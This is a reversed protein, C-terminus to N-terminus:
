CTHRQVYCTLNTTIYHLCKVVSYSMWLNNTEMSLSPVIQFVWSYSLFQPCDPCKLSSVSSFWATDAGTTLIWVGLGGPIGTEVCRMAGSALAVVPSLFYANANETWFFQINLVASSCNATGRQAMILCCTYFVKLYLRLLACLICVKKHCRVIVFRENYNSDKHIHRKNQLVM